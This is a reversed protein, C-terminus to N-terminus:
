PAAAPKIPTDAAPTGFEAEADVLRVSSVIRRVLPLYSGHRSERCIFEMTCVRGGLNTLYVDRLMPSGSPRAEGGRSQFWAVLDEISRGEGSSEARKPPEPFAAELLMGYQYFVRGGIEFVMLAATAAYAQEEALRHVRAQAEADWGKVVATWYVPELDVAMYAELPDHLVLAGLPPATDAYWFDPVTIAVPQTASVREAMEPVVKPYGGAVVNKAAMFGSYIFVVGMLGVLANRFYRGPRRMPDGAAGRRDVEDTEPDPLPVFLGILAGAFFGGMHALHDISQESADFILTLVALVGFMIPYFNRASAPLFRRQRLMMIFAAGFLGMIAGSAGSSAAHHGLFASAVSGAIGTVMYALFMSASGSRRELYSGFFYCVICNFLLHPFGQHIFMSAVLQWWNEPSSRVMSSVNAGFRVLIDQDTSSGLIEMLLWVVFNIAILAATVRGASVRFVSTQAPRYRETRLALLDLVLLHDTQEVTLASERAHVSLSVADDQRRAAASTWMAEDPSGAESDLAKRFGRRAPDMRGLALDAVARWYHSFAEPIDELLDAHRRFLEDLAKRKGSMALLVAYALLREVQQHRYLPGKAEAAVICAYARETRALEAYPRVMLFLVDADADEPQDFFEDFIDAADEWRDWRVLRYLLQALYRSRVGPGSRRPFADLLERRADLNVGIEATAAARALANLGRGSRDLTLIRYLIMKGRPLAGTLLIARLFKNEMFLPMLGVAAFLACNGLVCEIANMASFLCVAPLSSLLVSLIARGLYWRRDRRLHLVALFVWCASLSFLIARSYM